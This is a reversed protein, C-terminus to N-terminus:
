QPAAAGAPVSPAVPAASTSAPTAAAPEPPPPAAVFRLKDGQVKFTGILDGLGGPPEEDLTRFGECTQTEVLYLKKGQRLVYTKDGTQHVELAIRAIPTAKLDHRRQCDPLRAAVLSLDVEKKWFWPQDAVLTLAHDNGEISYSAADHMCGSLLPLALLPLLLLARM